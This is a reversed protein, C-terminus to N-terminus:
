IINPTMVTSIKSTNEPLSDMSASSSRSSLADHSSGYSITSNLSVTDAKNPNLQGGRCSSYPSVHVHKLM